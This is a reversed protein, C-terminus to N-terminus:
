GAAPDARVAALLPERVTCNALLFSDALEALRDTRLDRL